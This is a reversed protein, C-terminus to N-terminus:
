HPKYVLKSSLPVMRYYTDWADRKSKIGLSRELHWPIQNGACRPTASFRAKFLNVFGSLEYLCSWQSRFFLSAVGDHVRQYVLM